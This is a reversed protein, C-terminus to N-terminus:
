FFIETLFLVPGAFVPGTKPKILFHNKNRVLM